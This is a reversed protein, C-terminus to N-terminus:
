FAGDFVNLVSRFIVIRRQTGIDVFIKLSQDQAVRLSNTDENDLEIQIKGLKDDLSTIFNKNTGGTFSLVIITLVQTLDTTDASVTNNPNPTNWAALVTALDDIGNFNLVISNGITGKVDATFEVGDHTAGAFTSPASLSTKELISNNSKKFQAKIETFGTLDFPERSEDFVIRAVLIRDEGRIIDVKNM